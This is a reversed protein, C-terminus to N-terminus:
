DELLHLWLHLPLRDIHVQSPDLVNGGPCKRGLNIVFSSLYFSSQHFFVKNALPQISSLIRQNSSAPSVFNKEGLLLLTTCVTYNCCFASGQGECKILYTRQRFPLQFQHLLTNSLKFNDCGVYQM